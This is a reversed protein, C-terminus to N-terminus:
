LPPLHGCSGTSRGGKRTPTLQPSQSSDDCRRKLIQRMLAASSELLTFRIVSTTVGTTDGHIRGAFIEMKRRITKAKDDQPPVSSECFTQFGSDLRRMMRKRRREQPSSRQV